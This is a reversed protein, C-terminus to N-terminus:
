GKLDANYRKIIIKGLITGNVLFIIEPLTSCPLFKSILIQIVHNCTPELKKCKCIFKLLTKIRDHIGEVMLGVM